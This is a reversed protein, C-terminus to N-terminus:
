LFNLAADADLFSVDADANRCGDNKTRYRVLFIGSQTPKTWYRVPQLMTLKKEPLPSVPYRVTRCELFKFIKALYLLQRSKNTSKTRLTDIFNQRSM